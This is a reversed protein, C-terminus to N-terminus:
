VARHKRVKPAMKQIEEISSIENLEPGFKPRKDRDPDHFHFDSGGTVVLNHERAIALMDNIWPKLTSNHFIEIGRVGLSLCHLIEDRDVGNYQDMPHAISSVGGIGEIMRIAEDTYPLASIRRTSQAKGIKEFSRPIIFKYTPNARHIEDLAGPSQNLFAGKIHKRQISISKSISKIEQMILTVLNERSLPSGNAIRNLKRLSLKIELPYSGSRKVIIPDRRTEECLREIFSEHVHKINKLYLSFDKDTEAAELDFGYGLIHVIRPRETRRIFITTMEIGNLFRMRLEEATARGEALGSICDHDSIAVERVGRYHEYRVVEAPSLHGCPSNYTHTHYDRRIFPKDAKSSGLIIM